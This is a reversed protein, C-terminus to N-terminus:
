HKSEHAALGTLMEDFEDTGLAEEDGEGGQSKAYHRVAAHYDCLPMALVQEPALGM